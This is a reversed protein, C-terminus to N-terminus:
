VMIMTSGKSGRASEASSPWEGGFDQIKRAAGKPGPASKTKSLWEQIKQYDSQDFGKYTKEWQSMTLNPFYRDFPMRVEMKIERDVADYDVTRRLLKDLTECTERNSLSVDNGM